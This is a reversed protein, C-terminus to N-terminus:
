NRNRNCGSCNGQTREFIRTVAAKRQLHFEEAKILIDEIRRVTRYATSEHIGWDQAIHFFTRYERLYQLRLLIQDPISLKSQVGRSGQKATRVIEVMKGFSDQSVGYLRKFQSKSIERAKQYTM